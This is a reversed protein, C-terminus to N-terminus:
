IEDALAIFARARHSVTNKEAFSAEGFSKKLEYSYFLPDYGFGGEGRQETLICGETRGEAVATREGDFYAACCVFAADRDTFGNMNKLLKENNKVDDHRNGAYRASYVGPEGGLSYVELGSDDSIVPLGTLAYVAKAKILANEKFTTGTEEIDTDINCDTLSLVEFRDKLIARIEKLKDKNSSALVLKKM